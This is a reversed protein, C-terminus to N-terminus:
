SAYSLLREMLSSLLQDYDNRPDSKSSVSAGMYVIYIGNSRLQASETERQFLVLFISLYFSIFFGKM